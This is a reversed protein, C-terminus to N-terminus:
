KGNLVVREMSKGIDMGIKEWDSKLSLRDQEFGRSFDPIAIFSGWMDFASAYGSLFHKLKSMGYFITFFSAIVM